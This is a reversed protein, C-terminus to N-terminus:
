HAPLEGRSVRRVARAMPEWTAAMEPRNPLPRSLDLQKRFADLIRDSQLSPDSYASMTAVSQRGKVARLVAGKESALFRALRGAAEKRQSEASVFAAEVTLFPEAPRGTETVTPLPHVSFPVGERIEGLFWPGNIVMAAKGENFLQSVLASTPEEPVLKRRQLELLFDLSEANSPSSLAPEGSSDFLGTGFGHLWPAHYYPETAQYALPFVGSATELELLEGTTKPVNDLLSDNVFLALCKFSLPIGYTEGGFQVAEVTTPHLSGGDPLEVPTILGAQSWAGIREHAAIFLDPGNGRPIAAELKSSFSDYPLALTSIELGPTEKAFDEALQELAEREAGRYAHWLKLEPEAAASSLWFLFHM